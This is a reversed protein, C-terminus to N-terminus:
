KRPLIDYILTLIFLFAPITLHGNQWFSDEVSTDLFADFSTNAGIHSHLWRLSQIDSEVYDVLTGDLDFLIAKFM